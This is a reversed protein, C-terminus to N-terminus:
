PLKAVERKKISIEADSPRVYNPELTALESKQTTAFRDQGLLALAVADPACLPDGLTIFRDSPTPRLPAYKSVMFGVFAQVDHAEITDRLAGPTLAQEPLKVELKQADSNWIYGGAYVERKRADVAAVILAGPRSRATAYALAQLTSIGVIPCSTALAIGKACALGVRLGTFSGPGVGTVILSLDASTLEHSSLLEAIAPLLMNGHQRPPEQRIHALVQTGKLLAIFQTYTSTDIALTFDSM